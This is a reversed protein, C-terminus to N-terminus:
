TWVVASTLGGGKPRDEVWYLSEECSRIPRPRSRLEDDSRTSVRGAPPTTASPVLERTWPAPRAPRLDAPGASGRIASLLFIELFIRGDPSTRQLSNDDPATRCRQHGPFVDDRTRQFRCMRVAPHRVHVCIWVDHVSEHPPARGALDLRKQALSIVAPPTSVGYAQFSAPNSDIGGVSASVDDERGGSQGVAHHEFGAAIPSLGATGRAGGDVPGIGTMEYPRAQFPPLPDGGAHCLMRGDQEGQRCGAESSDVPIAGTSRAPGPGGLPATPVTTM